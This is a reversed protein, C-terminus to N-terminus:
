EFLVIESVAIDNENVKGPYHGNIIISYYDYVAPEKIEITQWGVEDPLTGSYLEDALNTDDYCGMVTIKKIRGYDEWNIDQGNEYYSGNLIKIGRIPVREKPVMFILPSIGNSAEALENAEDEGIVWATQPNNDVVNRAHFQPDRGHRYTVDYGGYGPIPQAKIASEFRKGMDSDTAFRAWLNGYYGKWLFYELKTGNSKLPVSAFSDMYGAEADYDENWLLGYNYEGYFSYGEIITIYSDGEGTYYEVAGDKLSWATEINNKQSYDGNDYISFYKVNGYQDIAVGAISANEFFPELEPNKNRKADEMVETYSKYIKYSDEGSIINKIFIIIGVIIIVGFLCWIMKKSATTKSTFNTESSVKHVRDESIQDVKSKSEDAIPIEDKLEEVRYECLGNDLLRYSVILFRILYYLINLVVLVTLTIITKFSNSSISAIILILLGAITVILISSLFKGLDGLLGTYNKNIHLTIKILLCLGILAIINIFIDRVPYIDTMITLFEIIFYLLILVLWDRYLTKSIDKCGKAFIYSFIGGPVYLLLSVITSFSLSCLDFEKMAEIAVSLIGCVIMLWFWIKFSGNKCPLSDIKIKQKDM